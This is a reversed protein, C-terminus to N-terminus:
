PGGRYQQQILGSATHAFRQLIAAYRSTLAAKAERLSQVEDALAQERASRRRSGLWWGVPLTTSAAIVAALGEAIFASM